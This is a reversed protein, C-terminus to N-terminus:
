YNFDIIDEAQEPIIEFEEELKDHYYEIDSGYEWKDTDVNENLYDKWDQLKTRVENTELETKILVSLDTDNDNILNIRIIQM